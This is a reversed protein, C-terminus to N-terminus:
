RRRRDRDTTDEPEELKARLRLESGEMKKGDLSSVFKQADRKETFEVLGVVMAKEKYTRVYDVSKGYDLALRELEQWTMDIPLNEIRVKGTSSEEKRDRSRSRSRSRSQRRRTSVEREDNSYFSSRPPHAEERKSPTTKSNNDDQNSPNAPGIKVARGQIKLGDGDKMARDACHVKKFQVFAFSDNRSKRFYKVDVVEGFESLAKRVDEKNANDDIRGVWVRANRDEGENAVM